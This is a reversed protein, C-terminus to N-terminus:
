KGTEQGPLSKSLVFTLNVVNSPRVGNTPGGNTPGHQILAFWTPIEGVKLVDILPDM